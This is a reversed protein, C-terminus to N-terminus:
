ESKRYGQSQRQMEGPMTREVWANFAEETDIVELWEEPEVKLAAAKLRIMRKKGYRDELAGYWKPHLFRPQVIGIVLVAAFLGGGVYGLIRAQEWVYNLAFRTGLVIFCLGLLVGAAPYPHRNRYTLPRWWDKKAGLWMDIARAGFWIGYGVLAIGIMEALLM